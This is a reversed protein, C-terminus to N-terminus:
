RFGVLEFRHPTVWRGIVHVVDAIRLTRFRDLAFLSADFPLTVTVFAGNMDRVDFADRGPNIGLVRGSVIEMGGDRASRAEVSYGVEIREVLAGRPTERLTLLVPDGPRLTEISLTQKNSLVRTRADFYVEKVEGTRTLIELQKWDSDVRRVEALVQGEGSPQPLGDHGAGLAACGSMLFAATIAAMGATKM